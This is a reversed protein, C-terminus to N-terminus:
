LKKKSYKVLLNIKGKYCLKPSVDLNGFNNYYDQAILYKEEWIYEESYWKMGIKELRNIRELSLTNNKYSKRLNSIWYGLNFGEFCCNQSASIGRYM